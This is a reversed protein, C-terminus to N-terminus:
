DQLAVAWVLPCWGNNINDPLALQLNNTITVDQDEDGYILALAVTLIKNDENTTYLPNEKEVENENNENNEELKKQILIMALMCNIVHKKMEKMSLSNFIDCSTSDYDDQDLM